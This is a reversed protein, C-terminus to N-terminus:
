TWYVGSELLFNSLIWYMTSYIIDFRGNATRGASASAKANNCNQLVSTHQTTLLWCNVRLYTLHISSPGELTLHQPMWTNTALVSHCCCRHCSEQTQRSRTCYIWPSCLSSLFPQRCWLLLGALLWRLRGFHDALNEWCALWECSRLATQSVLLKTVICM